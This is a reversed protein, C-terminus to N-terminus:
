NVAQRVRYFRVTSNSASSDIFELRNSESINTAVSSWFLLNTAAQVEFRQLSFASTVTFRFRGDLLRAPDRLALPTVSIRVEQSSGVNLLNDSYRATLVHEGAALNSVALSYPPAEVTGILNTGSFFRMPNESGDDTVVSASLPIVASILFIEGDHPQALSVEPYLFAWGVLIKVPASTSTAGRDDTATATLSYLGGEFPPPGGLVNTLFLNYPAQTVTGLLNTGEYFRVEVVAGDADTATAKLRVISPFTFYSGSLPNTLSISPPSNSYAQVWAKASHCFLAMGVMLATSCRGALCDIARSIKFTQGV